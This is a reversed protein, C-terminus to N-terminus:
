QHKRPCEKYAKYFENYLEPQAKKLEKKMEIGQSGNKYLVHVQDNHLFRIIKIVNKSNSGSYIKGEGFAM